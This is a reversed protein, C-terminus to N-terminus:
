IHGIFESLPRPSQIRVLSGRRGLAGDHTKGCEAAILQQLHNVYRYKRAGSAYGVGPYCLAAGTRPLCGCKRWSM